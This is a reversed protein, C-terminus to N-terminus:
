RMLDTVRVAAPATRHTLNKYVRRIPTATRDTPILEQEDTSTHRGYNRIYRTLNRALDNVSAFVGHRRIAHCKM